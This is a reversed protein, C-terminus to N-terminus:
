SNGDEDGIHLLVGAEKLKRQLLLVDLDGAGIGGATMLAAATGAAQGTLACVPIVRSVEWGDGAPASIIRGAALINAIGACYLAGMPIEYRCGIHDKRFDGCRGISDGARAGDVAKFDKVGVIRRITRFQPMFPLMAIDRRLRDQERLEQLLLRHGETVYRTIEEAHVGSILEMGEPQGKGHRNSGVLAWRRLTRMDRSEVYADATRDDMIHAILSMYNEGCVTEAGARAMVRADGTADIVAGAKYTVRGEVTEAVIGRCSGAEMVPETFLCDLVLEAGSELLFEELALAFIMPSFWTTYRSGSRWDEPLSDFGYRVSIRILEEAIGGIMQRGVGDCLPEFWNILGTTALGGLVISKEMLLTRAGQRAAAVAASVGAIGGGVVIVDYSGKEM